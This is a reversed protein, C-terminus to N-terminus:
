TFAVLAAAILTTLIVVLAVTLCGLDTLFQRDERTM